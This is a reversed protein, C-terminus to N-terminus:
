TGSVTRHDSGTLRIPGIIAPSFIVARLLPDDRLYLSGNATIRGDVM